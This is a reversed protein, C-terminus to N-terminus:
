KKTSTHKDAQHLPFDKLNRVDDQGTPNFFFFFDRENRVKQISQDNQKLVDATLKTEIKKQQQQQGSRHKLHCLHYGNYLVACNYLRCVNLM